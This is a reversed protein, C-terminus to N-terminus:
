LSTDFKDGLDKLVKAPVGGVLTRPPVDKTVVAGTAIVAEKGITVGCIVTVGPMLWAGEGIVVPEVKRPYVDKLRTDTPIHAHATIICRDGIAAHDQITIMHPFARDFLVNDGIYVDKGINLGCMRYLRAKASKAPCSRAMKELIFRVLRRTCYVIRGFGSDMGYYQLVEKSPM